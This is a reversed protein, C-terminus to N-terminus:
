ARKESIAKMEKNISYIERMCCVSFATVGPLPLLGVLKDVNTLELDEHNSAFYKSIFYEVVEEFVTGGFFFFPTAGLSMALDLVVPGVLMKFLKARRNALFNWRDEVSQEPIVEAKSM